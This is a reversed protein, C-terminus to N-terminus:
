FLWRKQQVNQSLDLLVNSVLIQQRYQEVTRFNIFQEVILTVQWLPELMYKLFFVFLLFRIQLRCCKFNVFQM